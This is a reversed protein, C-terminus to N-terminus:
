KLRLKCDPNPCVKAEPPLDWGCDPCKAFPGTSVITKTPKLFSYIAIVGLIALPLSVLFGLLLLRNAGTQIQKDLATIKENKQAIDDRLQKNEAELTNIKQKLERTEMRSQSEDSSGSPSSSDGDCGWFAFLALVMLPVSVLFRCNLANM